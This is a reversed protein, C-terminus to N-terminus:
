VEPLSLLGELGVELVEMEMHRRLTTQPLPFYAGVSGIQHQAGFNLSQVPFVVEFTDLLLTTGTDVGRVRLAPLTHTRSGLM